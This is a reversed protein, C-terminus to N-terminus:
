SGEIWEEGGECTEKKWIPVTEKLTDIVFRCADFAADRHPAAVAVAVSADGMALVGLRHVIAIRTVEFRELARERLRRLEALAMEEYASYALGTVRRGLNHDRV